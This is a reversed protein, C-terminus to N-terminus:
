LNKILDKMNKKTVIKPECLYSPVVYVGNDYTTTDNIQPEKGEAIAEVMEVVVSSLDDPNKLITMGLAGSKVHELGETSADQGTIVPMNSDTFGERKLASVIGLAICDAPALVADLREGSPRYNYQEILSSMRKAAEQTSWAPTQIVKPDIQKSRIVFKGSDLHPQLYKMAGNFFYRANNDDISGYFLEIYKVDDSAYPKLRGILFRGQLEGVKANDFTAYYSVADTGTILRDYSIVKINKQKAEKLVETLAAGDISGIVLVNCGENIVRSIQRQQLAVDADGAFFLETQFGASKMKQELVFGDSYWRTENQTPMLLGVKYAYSTNFSVSFLFFALLLFIKKMLTKLTGPSNIIM